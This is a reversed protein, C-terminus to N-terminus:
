KVRKEGNVVYVGAPLTNWVNMEGVYQGTITYVGKASKVAEANEIGTMIGNTNIIQFRYDNSENAEAHFTYIAGEEINTRAGNALDILVLSEGEVNEFSITYMGANVTRYGIYSNEIEDAAYVDYKENDMVYLQLGPNNYKPACFSRNEGLESDAVITTHDADNEGAINIQAKTINSITRRAPANNSNPTTYPDWVLASYDLNLGNVAGNPNYFMMPEMANVAHDPLVSSNYVTVAEWKITGTNEDQHYYYIAQQTGYSANWAALQNLIATKDIPGMYANGLTTWKRLLTFTHDMNGTLEGYFTFSPKHDADNKSTIAYLGFPSNFKALNAMVDPDGPVNFAGIYDWAPNRWVDFYIRDTSETEIKTVAGNYTPMGFFQLVDFSGHFSKSNYQVKAMPHTNSEVAPDLLFTAQNNEDAELILNSAQFAAIGQKGTVILTGGAKVVIQAKAGLVVRGVELTKGTPITLKQNYNQSIQLEALKMDKTLTEEKTTANIWNISADQAAAIVSNAEVPAAGNSIVITENGQDDVDVVTAHTSSTQGQLFETLNKDGITTGSNGGEVTGGTIAVTTSEGQATVQTVKITGENGEQFEGGEININNVKTGASAPQSVAEDLAYGVTPTVTTNGSVTVDMGGAYATSSEMVIGSGGADVGSTRDAVAPNYTGEYNSAITADKIELQGSKIYVGTSGICTGEIMWRSYGGSYAAIAESSLPVDTKLEAGSHIYIFPSYLLEEGAEIAYATENAPDQIYGPLAVGTSSSAPAGMNGNAKVCYKDAYVKGYIDVRAGNALGRSTTYVNTDYPKSAPTTLGKTAIATSSWSDIRDIVIANSHATLTVNAAINLHSYYGSKATKANVTKYTSGSVHFIDYTSSTANTGTQVINGNIVNLEGHTIIFMKNVTTNVASLTYGNLDLTLSKAADNMGTTGLWLAKSLAINDTLQIVDGTEANQWANQLSAWDNATRTAAWANTGILLATAMLVISYIKKM